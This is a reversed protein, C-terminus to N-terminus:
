QSNISAGLARSTGTTGVATNSRVSRVISLLLELELGSICIVRMSPIRQGKRHVFTIMFLAVLGISVNDILGNPLANRALGDQKSWNAVSDM